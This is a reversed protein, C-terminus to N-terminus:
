EEIFYLSHSLFLLLFARRFTKFFSEVENCFSPYSYLGIPLRSSPLTTERKKLNRHRPRKGPLTGGTFRLNEINRNSGFAVKSIGLGEVHPVAPALFPGIVFTVPPDRVWARKQDAKRVDEGFASSAAGPPWPPEKPLPVRQRMKSSRAENKKKKNGGEKQHDDRASPSPRRTPAAPELCPIGKTHPTNKGQPTSPPHALQKRWRNRKGHSSESAGRSHGKAFLRLFFFSAGIRNDKGGPGRGERKLNRMALKRHM